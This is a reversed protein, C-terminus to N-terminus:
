RQWKYEMIIYYYSAKVAITKNDPGANNVYPVDKTAVIRHTKGTLVWEVIDGIKFKMIYKYINM